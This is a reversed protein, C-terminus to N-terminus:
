VARKRRRPAHWNPAPRRQSRVFRSKLIPADTRPNIFAPDRGLKMLRENFKRLSKQVGLLVVPKPGPPPHPPSPKAAVNRKINRQIIIRICLKDVYM